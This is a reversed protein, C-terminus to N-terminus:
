KKMRAALEAEVAAADPFGSEVWWGELLRSMVGMSPGKPLGAAQMMAGTLPFKPRQYGATQRAAAQVAQLSGQGKAHALTARDLVAMPGDIYLAQELPLTEEKKNLARGIREKQRNSLRLSQAMAAGSAEDPVLAILRLLPDDSLAVMAELPALDPSPMDLIVSLLGAEQLARAAKHAQPLAMIKLMEAQRREGSLTALAPAAQTCAARAQADLAAEPTLRYHFRFYRLVRLYDEEIRARAEGIFRVRKAKIDDLGHGTPDHLTGDADAYLANITFDRRAADGQWDQTFAVKAHRGDTTVDVRLSTIEYILPGEELHLGEELYIIASVTGHRLGTGVTKVGAAKLRTMVQEPTLNTAMDVETDRDAVQLLTDRVCGGVCRTIAGDANLVRLLNQTEPRTLWDSHPTGFHTM